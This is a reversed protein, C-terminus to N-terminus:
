GGTTRASCNRGRFKKSGGLHNVVLRPTGETGEEYVRVGGPWALQPTPWLHLNGAGNVVVDLPLVAGARAANQGLRYEIRLDRAVPGNFGAPRGAAPLPRVTLTIPRSEVSRRGADASRAGGPTSWSLVAPPIQIAGPNLPFVTQFGVFLDYSEGDVVRSAVAGPVPTRPESWVGLLSPPSLTPPQRLRMRLGRPLWAATLVDVQDGAYMVDASAVTFVSPGGARPPPVRPVLALLDPDLGSPAGGTANSVSVTEAPSFGSADGHEVRIPGISWTGVQEARLRLELTYQRTLQKQGYVIDVHEKRELLAFGDLAPLDARFPATSHGVAHLTFVVEEGVVARGKDTSTTIDLAPPQQVLALLLPLALM